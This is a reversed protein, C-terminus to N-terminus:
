PVVISLIEWAFVDLVNLVTLSNDLIFRRGCCVCLTGVTLKDLVLQEHEIIYTNLIGM